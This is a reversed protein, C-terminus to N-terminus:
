SGLSTLQIEYREVVQMEEGGLYITQYREVPLELEDLLFEARAAMRGSLLIDFFMMNGNRGVM